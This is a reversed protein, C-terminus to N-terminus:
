RLLNGRVSVFEEFASAAADTEADGIPLSLNMMGRRAVYVGRELLDFFFLGRLDQNTDKIDRVSRVPGRTFQVNMMSGRGTFQVNVDAKQAIDNLRNRLKDGRANLAAAAEATYIETLGAIGAAMTMVNNNFTGAHPLFEPKRPDFLSMIAEKGGFAGFSMGGGIYKGLTTMDPTIGTALQLGGPSLRSTMVEDFILVIGHASALERLGKLFSADAPICGAGGQMPELIIAALRDKHAEVVARTAELDNYPAHIFPFPVNIAQGAAFNLVGGHYASEFVLIAERKTSARAASLAMLNAETGSNTFRVLDISPFRACVLAALKGELATQGGLNIGGELVRRLAERIVPHSHGYLGATYEGVYDVYEHGDVDFLRCGEGRAFMPPFPDFFLVSRTNGGPLSKCAEAHLAASKPHAAAFREKAEALAAASTTNARDDRM